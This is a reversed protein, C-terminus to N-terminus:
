PQLADVMLQGYRRGFERQSTLDFHLNGFGDNPLPTFGNARAVSTNTIVSPLQNILTNHATCCGGILLEGAVFPVEGTGLDSRLRDVVTKVRAPWTGQNNDTEGQHFIMGRIEGRQQAMRARTLLNNYNQQGPQFTDISVGPVAAPVLLITDEPFADAVTKAFYDGPGLGPGQTGTGIQGVCGHLPPQAPVWQNVGHRQCSTMTLVEVRPNIELDQQQPNPVGWMNSQGFLLFVQTRPTGPPPDPDVPPPETTATATPQPEVTASGGSGGTSSPPPESPAVNTVDQDSGTGVPAANTSGGTGANGTASLDPGPQGSGNSGTAGPPAQGSFPPPASGEPAEAEGSCAGGAAAALLGLALSTYFRM